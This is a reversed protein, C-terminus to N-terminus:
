IRKRIHTLMWLINQVVIVADNFHISHFHAVRNRADVIEQMKVEFIKKSDFYKSFYFDWNNRRTITDRINELIAYDLPNEPKQFNRNRKEAKLLRAQIEERTRRDLADKLWDAGLATELVNKNFKRMELELYGIIGFVPARLNDLHMKQEEIESAAKRLANMDSETLDDKSEIEIIHTELAAFAQNHSDLIDELFRKFSESTVYSGSGGRPIYGKRELSSEAFNDTAKEGRAINLLAAQENASLHNWNYRHHSELEQQLLSKLDNDFLQSGSVIKEFYFYCSLKLFFPNSGSFRIISDVVSPDITIGEREFTVTILERSASEDLGRLQYKTFINFFPSTPFGKEEFLSPLDRLTSVVFVIDYMQALYRLNSFIDGKKLGSVHEFEDFLFVIKQKNNNIKAIIEEFQQFDIYEKRLLLDTDMKIHDTTKESICELLKRFLDPSGSLSLSSIDVYFMLIKRPSIKYRDLNRPHIIYLLLSTKGIKREGILSVSNSALIQHYISKTEEERGFFDNPDQVPRGYQFPNKRM